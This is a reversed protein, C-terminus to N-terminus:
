MHGALVEVIPRLQIADLYERRPSDLFAPLSEPVIDNMFRDEDLVFRKDPEYIFPSLPLGKM